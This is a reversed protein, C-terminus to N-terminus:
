PWEGEILQITGNAKQQDLYKGAGIGEPAVILYEEGDDRTLTYRGESEALTYEGRKVPHELGRKGKYAVVDAGFDSTVKVRCTM